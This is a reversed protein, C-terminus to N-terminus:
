GNSILFFWMKKPLQEERNYAGVEEPLLRLALQMKGQSNKRRVLQIGEGIISTGGFTIKYFYM